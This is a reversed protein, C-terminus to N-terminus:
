ANPDFIYERWHAACDLITVEDDPSFQSFNFVAPANQVDTSELNSVLTTTDSIDIIKNGNVDTDGRVNVLLVDDVSGNNIIEVVDPLGDGGALTPPRRVYTFDFELMHAGEYDRLFGTSSGTDDVLNGLLTSLKDKVRQNVTKSAGSPAYGPLTNTADLLGDNNTNALLNSAGGVTNDLYDTASQLTSDLFSPFDGYDQSIFLVNYSPDGGNGCNKNREPTGSWWGEDIADTTEELWAVPSNSGDTDDRWEYSCALGSPNNWNGTLNGFLGAILNDISTTADNQWGSALSNYVSTLTFPNNANNALNLNSLDSTFAVDNLGVSDPDNGLIIDFLKGLNLNLTTNSATVTDAKGKSSDWTFQGNTDNTSLNLNINDSWNELGSPTSTSPDNQFINGLNKTGSLNNVAEEIANILDILTSQIPIGLVTQSSDFAGKVADRLTKWLDFTTNTNNNKNQFVGGILADAVDVVTTLISGGSGIVSLYNNLLTWVTYDPDNSPLPPSLDRNSGEVNNPDGAVDPDLATLGNAIVQVATDDGDYTLPSSSSIDNFVDTLFQPMGNATSTNTTLGKQNSTTNINATLTGNAPDLDGELTGDVAAEVTLDNRLTDKLAQVNSDSSLASVDIASGLAGPLESIVGSGNNPDFANALDTLVQTFNGVYGQNFSSNDTSLNGFDPLSVGDLVGSLANELAQADFFGAPLGLDNELFTEIQDFVSPPNKQLDETSGTEYSQDPLSSFSVPGNTTCKYADPAVNVSQTTNNLNTGGSDFVGINVNVSGGTDNPDTLYGLSGSITEGDGVTIGTDPAETTGAGDCTLTVDVTKSGGTNNTWEYGVDIIQGEAVNGNNPLSLSPNNNSGSGGGTFGSLGDSNIVALLLDVIRDLRPNTTLDFDQWDNPDLIIINEGQISINTGQPLNEFLLQFDSVAPNTLLNDANGLNTLSDNGEDCKGLTDAGAHVTQNELFGATSLNDNPSLWLQGPASGFPNADDAQQNARESADELGKQLGIIFGLENLIERGAGQFSGPRTGDDPLDLASLIEIIPTLLKVTDISALTNRLDIGNLLTAIEQDLTQLDSSSVIRELETQIDFGSQELFDLVLNVLDPSTLPSNVQSDLSWTNATSDREGEIILKENTITDDIQIGGTTPDSENLALRIGNSVAIFRDDVAAAASQTMSGAGVAAGAAGAGTLKMFQRRDTDSM